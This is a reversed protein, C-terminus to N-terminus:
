YIQLFHLPPGPRHHYRRRFHGEGGDPRRRGGRHQGGGGLRGRPHQGQGPRYLREVVDGRITVDGTFNINGTSYDVNGAIELVPKVQFSRGSFEVHGTMSALLESGDESLETNRGVPASAKKGDVATLERDLVTRGPVGDTPAFIRCIPEGKSVNRIFNLSMYDVGTLNM